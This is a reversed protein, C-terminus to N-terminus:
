KKGKSINGYDLGLKICSYIYPNTNTCCLVPKDDTADTKYAVVVDIFKSCGFIHKFVTPLEASSVLKLECQTCSYHVNFLM